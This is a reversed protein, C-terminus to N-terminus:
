TGLHISANDFVLVVQSWFDSFQCVGNRDRPPFYTQLFEEMEILFEVFTAQTNTGRRFKCMHMGNDMLACIANTQNSMKFNQVAAPFYRSIWSYPAVRRSNFGVEDIWIFRAGQNNFLEFVAKYWEWHWTIDDWTVDTYTVNPKWYSHHLDFKVINSITRPCMKPPNWGIETDIYEKILKTTIAKGELALLAEKM